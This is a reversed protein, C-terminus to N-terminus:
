QAEVDLNEPFYKVQISTYKLKQVDNTLESPMGNLYDLEWWSITVIIKESTYKGGDSTTVTKLNFDITSVKKDYEIHKSISQAMRLWVESYGFNKPYYFKAHGPQKGYAKKTLCSLFTEKFSVSPLKELWYTDLADLNEVFMKKNYPIM